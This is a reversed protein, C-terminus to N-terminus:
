YPSFRRYVRYGLFGVAAGLVNAVIDTLDAQGLRLFFQVTEILTTVMLALLIVSDWRELKEPYVLPLLVGLPIFMAVNLLIHTMPEFSRKRIAESILDTRFIYVSTEKDFERSFLTVYAMALIYVLFLALMGKNVYRLNQLLGYFAACLIICAVLMLLTFLLMEASGLSSIIYIVPGTVMAYAFLLVVALVPMKVMKSARRSVVQYLYIYGCVLLIGIM